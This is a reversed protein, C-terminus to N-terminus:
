EGESDNAGLQAQLDRILVASLEAFSELRSLREKLKAADEDEKTEDSADPGSIFQIVYQEPGTDAGAQRALDVWPAADATTGQAASSLAFSILVRASYDLGFAFDLWQKTEEDAHATAAERLAHPYYRYDDQDVDLSAIARVVPQLDELPRLHKPLINRYKWLELIAEACADQAPRRDEASAKEAAQIREAVYHAMWSALLDDGAGLQAVLRQGLELLAKSRTVSVM